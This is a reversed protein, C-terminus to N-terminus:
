DSLEPAALTDKTIDPFEAQDTMNEQARNNQLGDRGLQDLECSTVPLLDM